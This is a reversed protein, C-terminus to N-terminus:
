LRKLNGFLLTQYQADAIVAFGWCVPQPKKAFCAPLPPPLYIGAIEGSLCATLPKQKHNGRRSAMTNTM